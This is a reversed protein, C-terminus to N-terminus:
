DIQEQQRQQYTVYRNRHKQKAFYLAQDTQHILSEVTLDDFSDPQWTYSGISLTLRESCQSYHHEINEQELYQQLQEVKTQIQEQSQNFALLLFEDGGYRFAFDQQESFAQHIFKAVLRLVKDGQQHGYHDNFTKYFDIDIMLCTLSKQQKQAKNILNPAITDLEYRNFLQTLADYRSLTNLRQNVAELEQQQQKLINTQRLNELSVAIYGALQKALDCHHQQYLYPTHHELFLVGITIENLTIPTIIISQTKEDNGQFLQRDMKQPDVYVALDQESSTNLHLQQQHAVSYAGLSSDDECRIIIPPIVAGDEIFYDYNLQHQAQDYLAIGFVHIPIILNLQQYIEPLHARLNNATAIQQGIKTIVSLNNHLQQLNDFQRKQEGLTLIYDMYRTERGASRAIENNAEKAQLALINNAKDFDGQQQYIQVQLHYLRNKAQYHDENSILKEAQLCHNLAAKLKNKKLLLLAYFYQNESRGFYEYSQAFYYDSTIYSHKAKSYNNQIAYIRGQYSWAYGLTRQCLTKQAYHIAEQIWAESDILDDQHALALAVNMKALAICNLDDLELALKDAKRCYREGQKFDNLLLYADGINLNLLMQFNRDKLNSNKYAKLFHTLGHQFQGLMTYITGLHIDCYLSLVASHQQYCIRQCHLFTPIAKAMNNSRYAEYATIFQEFEDPFHIKHQHATALVQQHTQQVEELGTCQPLRTLITLIESLIPHEAM